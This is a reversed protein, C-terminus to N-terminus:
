LASINGFIQSIINIYIITEIKNITTDHISCFNIKEILTQQGILRRVFLRFSKNRINRDCSRSLYEGELRKEPSCSKVKFTFYISNNM